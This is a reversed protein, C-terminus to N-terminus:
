LSHGRFWGTEMCDFLFAQQACRATQPLSRDWIYLDNYLFDTSIIAEAFNAKRFVHNWAIEEFSGALRNINHILTKLRRLVNYHERITGIVLSVEAELLGFGLGLIQVRKKGRGRKGREVRM